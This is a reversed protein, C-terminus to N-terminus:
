WSSARRDWSVKSFALRLLLLLPAALRFLSSESLASSGPSPQWMGQPFSSSLTQSSTSDSSLKWSSLTSFSRYESSSSSSSTESLQLLELELGRFSDVNLMKFRLKLAEPLSLCECALSKMAPSPDLGLGADAPMATDWRFTRCIQSGM